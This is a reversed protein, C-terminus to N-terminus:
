ASGLIAITINSTRATRLFARETPQKMKSTVAFELSECSLSKIESARNGSAGIERHGSKGIGRHRSSKVGEGFGKFYILIERRLRRDKDPAENL